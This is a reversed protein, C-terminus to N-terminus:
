QLRRSADCTCEFGPQIGVALSYRVAVQAMDAELAVIFGLKELPSVRVKRRRKWWWRARKKGEEKVKEKIINVEIGHDSYAVHKNTCGL